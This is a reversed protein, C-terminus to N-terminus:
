NKERDILKQAVQLAAQKAEEIRREIEAASVIDLGYASVMEFNNIGFFLGLARLYPSAQELIHGDDIDMGRTTVYVMREAKCGGVFDGSATVAFTFGAVSVNEFYTKLKAPIGMDWFPAAVVVLDAAAFQKACNFLPDDTKQENLLRTRYELEKAGLPMLPTKDVVVTEIEFLGSKQLKGILADAILKTRSEEARLCSDVYLVKKM